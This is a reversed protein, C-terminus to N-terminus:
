AYDSGDFELSSIAPGWSFGEATDPGRWTLEGGVPRGQAYEQQLDPFQNANSFAVNSSVTVRPKGEQGSKTTILIVGNAARLGYLTQAAIGKLIEMSAIDNQNIDIARNSNDVGGVGNQSSSNDIPVGDVVFLPSNTRNISTNGRIRINTSAGVSGSSGTVQVGAAKAALATALNVENTNAIEEADVTQTAYSLERSKRKIGLATVVVEELAEADEEMQVNITNGAGIARREDKQGVYTFLLTQGPSAKIAYNGDFDSQTGSTTGEVVINVGPLPLGDQDTVTGSVTKEQAFSMQVILALFLTLM